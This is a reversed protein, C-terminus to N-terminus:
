IWAKDYWEKVKAIPYGLMEHYIKVNDAGVPRWIWYQRRPTASLL